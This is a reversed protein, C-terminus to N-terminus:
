ENGRGGRVLYSRTGQHLCAIDSQSVRVYVGVGDTVRGSM